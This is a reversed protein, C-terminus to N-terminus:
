TSPDKHAHNGKAIDVKRGRVIMMHSQEGFREACFLPGGAAACADGYFAIDDIGSSSVLVAIESPDYELMSTLYERSPGGDKPLLIQRGRLRRKTVEFTFESLLFHDDIERWDKGVAHQRYWALNHLDLLLRGGPVLAAVM